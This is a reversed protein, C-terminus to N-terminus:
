TAPRQAVVGGHHPDIEGREGMHHEGVTMVVMHAPDARQGDVWSGDREDGTRVHEALPAVEQREGEPPAVEIAQRPRQSPDSGAM